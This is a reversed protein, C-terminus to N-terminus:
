LYLYRLDWGDDHRDLKLLGRRGGFLDSKVNAAFYVSHFYDGNDFRCMGRPQEEVEVEVKSTFSSPLSSIIKQIFEKTFHFEAREQM